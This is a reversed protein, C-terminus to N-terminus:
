AKGDYFKELFTTPKPPAEEESLTERRMPRPRVLEGYATELPANLEALIAQSRPDDEQVISGLLAELRHM